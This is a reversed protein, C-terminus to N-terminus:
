LLDLRIAFQLMRTRYMGEKRLYELMKGSEDMLTQQQTTLQGLTPTSAGSAAGPRPVTEPAATGVSVENKIEEDTREREKTIIIEKPKEAARKEAEVRKQEAEELKRQLTKLQNELKAEERREKMAERFRPRQISGRAIAQVRIAANRNNKLYV